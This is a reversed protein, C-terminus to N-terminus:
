LRKTGAKDQKLLVVIKKGKKREGTVSIGKM